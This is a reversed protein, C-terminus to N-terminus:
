GGYGSQGVPASAGGLGQSDAIRALALDEPLDAYRRELMRDLIALEQILIPHRQEPLSELLNLIMSRLRRAIQINEAGYARIECFALHVFDEWNPTQFIVRMYGDRGRIAENRLHRRGASRLLRHLQDIALVATTPDNIAPSLAKIAIDVLIRLAFTSDQEVTRERGFAVNGRLVADPVSAAAGHLRFLAEGVAVFDGVRPVIEIVGGAKEAAITLAKLNIALIIGSIGDHLVVRAPPQAQQCAPSTSDKAIETPSKASEPYISEIVALGDKSIRWIISVPRLLRAAYDILFLFGITSLLGMISSLSIIFQPATDSRNRAGVALLLGFVFLGVVSRIVNDRLLMTAIVRPTLSASAVQIAVLMSGFSFGLFTLQLTVGIDLASNVNEGTFVFGPIGGPDIKFGIMIRSLLIASLFAIVPALWLTSLVYSRVTYWRNWRM